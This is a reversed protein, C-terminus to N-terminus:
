DGVSAEVYGVGVGEEGLVAFGKGEEETGM